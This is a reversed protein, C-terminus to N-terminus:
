LIKKAELIKSKAKFFLDVLEPDFFTGKGELIIEDIKNEPFADKYTRKTGLGDYVDVLTVIRTELPIDNGSLGELYGSGDWKEHHYRVITVALQPVGSM